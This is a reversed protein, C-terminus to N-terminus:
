NKKSRENKLKAEIILKINDLDKITVLSDAIYYNISDMVESVADLHVTNLNKVNNTFYTIQSFLSDKEPSEKVFKLKDDIGKSAYKVSLNKIPNVIYDNLKNTAIYFVVAFFVTSFILTKILCGTKM